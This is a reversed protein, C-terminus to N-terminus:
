LHTRKGTTSCRCVGSSTSRTSTARSPELPEYYHNDADIPEFDFDM